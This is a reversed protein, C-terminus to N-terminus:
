GEREEHAAEHQKEDKKIGAYQDDSQLGARHAGTQGQSM